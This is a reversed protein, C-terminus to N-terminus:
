DNTGLKYALGAIMLPYPQTQRIYMPQELDYSADQKFRHDGTWVELSGMGFFNETTWWKTGNYSYQFPRSKILMATIEHIRRHKGQPTGDLGGTTPPLTKVLSTFGLGIHWQTYAFTHTIQGGSVTFDGVYGDETFAQVTEGELHDLGTVTSIAGGSYKLGSDVFFSAGFNTTTEPDFDIDFYEIYRETGGNITRKVVMYVSDEKGSISPVVAVSEVAVATGGLPHIHWATIEQEKNYTFGVLDGDELVGWIISHPEKQYAIDICSTGRRLMHEGVVTLDAATFSDLEFSYVLERLKRGSRSVFITASGARIPRIGEPSGHPTQPLVITNSPTLPENISSAKVQWEASATGLLLVPGSLMWRIPNVDNSVITYTIANDDLVQLNSQHPAFNEYDGTVSMWVTQPQTLTNAFCLRQEHFIVVAPYGTTDSWAGLSWLSTNGNNYYPPAGPPVFTQFQDPIEDEDLTASVTTASSYSTITAIRVVDGYVLKVKRGPTTATPADTSVWVDGGISNLTVTITRSTLELSVSPYTYGVGDAYRVVAFAQLEWREPTADSFWGTRKMIGWRYQTATEDWYRVVKNTMTERFVGSASTEIAPATGGTGANSFFRSGEVPFQTMDEGFVDVTAFTNSADISIIKALRWIGTKGDRYEVYDNVAWGAFPTGGNVDTLTARDTIGTTQIQTETTNQGLFPGGTFAASAITWDVEGIFGGAGFPGGSTSGTLDIQTASVFIAVWTGNAAAELAGTIVVNQGNTIGHAAATTVRILGAGNDATTNIAGNNTSAGLRSLKQTPYSPHSIYLVDASQAFSLNSLDAKAFITSLELPNTAPNELRGGDQHFRVYFDGFELIYPQQNSFIFEHLITPDASDKVEAV